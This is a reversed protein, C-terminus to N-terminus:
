ESTEEITILSDPRVHVITGDFFTIEAASGSGTRVLDSRKLLMAKDASIWDFTGVARVKVSGEISTFRATTTTTTAASDQTPKPDSRFGGGYFYYLASAAAIVALAIASYITKYSITFWDLEDASRKKNPAM